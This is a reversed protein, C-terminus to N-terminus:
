LLLFLGVAIVLLPSLIQLTKFVVGKESALASGKATLIGSLSITLGMGISMMIAALIGTILHGLLLSFLLITMVGPCPVIGVSLALTYPKKNAAALAKEKTGFEKKLEYLLYLGVALIMAGSLKYMVAVSQNFTVSFIGKILYYVTFTLVTASLAHIVAVLYGVKFAEKAEKGRSLFYSAVVAKGHGPGVAHIIGYLLAIGTILLSGSFGNDDLQRFADAIENNLVKQYNNLFYIFHGYLGSM